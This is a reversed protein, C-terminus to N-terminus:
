LRVPRLSLTAPSGCPCPRFRTVKARYTVPFIKTAYTRSGIVWSISFLSCFLYPSAMIAYTGSQLSHEAHRHLVTIALMAGCMGILGIQLWPERGLRDFFIPFWAFVFLVVGVGGTALM